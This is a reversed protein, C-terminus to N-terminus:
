AARAEKRIVFTRRIEAALQNHQNLVEVDQIVFTLLGNKKEFIDSVRGNFTLRDGVHIPLHYTFSQDAHLIDQIGVGIEEVFGFPNEADLMELCFLYTPPIAVLGSADPEIVAPNTEGIARFFARLRGPEVVATIPRLCHGKFKSDVVLV